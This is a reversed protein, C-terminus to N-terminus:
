YEERKDEFEVVTIKLDSIILNLDAVNSFIDVHMIISRNMTGSQCFGEECLMTDVGHPPRCVGKVKIGNLVQLVGELDFKVV